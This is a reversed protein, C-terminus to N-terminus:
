RGKKTITIGAPTVYFRTGKDVKPKPVWRKLDKDYIGLDKKQESM